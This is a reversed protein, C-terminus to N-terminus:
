TCSAMVWRSSSSPTRHETTLEPEPELDLDAGLGRCLLIYPSLYAGPALLNIMPQCNQFASQPIQNYGGTPSDVM